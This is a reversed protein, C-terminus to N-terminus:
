LRVKSIVRMGISEALSVITKRSIKTLYTLQVVSPYRPLILCQAGSQILLFKALELFYLKDFLLIGIEYKLVEWLDTEGAKLYRKLKLGKIGANGWAKIFFPM